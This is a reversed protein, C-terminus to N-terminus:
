RYTNTSWTTQYCADQAADHFAPRPTGPPQWAGTSNREPNLGGLMGAHGEIDRRTAPTVSSFLSFSEYEPAIGTTPHDGVGSMATLDRTLFRTVAGLWVEPSARGAM